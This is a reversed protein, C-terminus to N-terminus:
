RTCGGASGDCLLPSRLLLLCSTSGRTHRCCVVCCVPMGDHEMAATQLCREHQDSSEQQMGEDRM